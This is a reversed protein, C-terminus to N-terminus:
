SLRTIFDPYEYLGMSIATYYREEVLIGIIFVFSNGRKPGSVISRRTVAVNMMVSLNVNMMVPCEVRM